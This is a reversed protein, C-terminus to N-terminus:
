GYATWRGVFFDDAGHVFPRGGVFLVIGKDVQNWGLADFKCRTM